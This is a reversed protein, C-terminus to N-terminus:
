LRQIKQNLTNQLLQHALGFPKIEIDPNLDTLPQLVFRRLHMRPHPVILDNHHIAKTGFLLIDIDITRPANIATRQRGLERELTICTNLLNQASASWNLQLVSNVFPPGEAHIPETQYRPSEFLDSVFPNNSLQDIVQDFTTQINGMNGGLALYVKHNMMM